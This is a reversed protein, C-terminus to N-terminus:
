SCPSILSEVCVELIFEFQFYSFKVSGNISNYFVLNQISDQTSKWTVLGDEFIHMVNAFFYYSPMFPITFLKTWSATMGYEKMIWVDNSSIWCLCNGFVSLHLTLSDIARYDCDPLLVKKYSENGLDFSAIFRQGKSYDKSALWNITGNVYKGSKQEVIFRDYQFTEKIDKWINTGVNHVVKVDTKNNDTSDYDLFVVVVKYNDSIPDHGFGHMQLIYGNLQLELPPLQIFKRISPNCIIGNCSGVIYVAHNSPIEHQAIKKCAVDKTFLSDLPYSKITYKQSLSSYTLIHILCTTSFRFHKKAFKPDSILSNWWKCVCRFQMLPKVPLRYLIEPILDFPITPLPSSHLSSSILTGILQQPKTTITKETLIPSSVTDNRKVAKRAM